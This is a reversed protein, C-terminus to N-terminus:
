YTLEEESSFTGKTFVQCIDRKVVKSVTKGKKKEQKVREEM